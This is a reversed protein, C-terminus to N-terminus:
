HQRRSWDCPLHLRLPFREGIDTLGNLVGGSGTM